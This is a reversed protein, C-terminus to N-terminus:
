KEYRPEHKKRLSGVVIGITVFIAIFELRGLWMQIIYTIKLGAPMAPSTIGTSLGVNATASVSEFLAPLFDYGYFCGILGGILFCTTFLFLGIFANKVKKDELVFNQFHHYKECYRAKFPLLWTKIEMAVAKFIMGLRLMKIGGTTSGMSGGFAMALALFMLSSQKWVNLENGSLNTFGCGTQASILQYFGKRFLGTATSPMLTLYLALLMLFFLGAFTRMEINKFLENRRKTWLFYHLNFSIAGLMMCLATISEVRMDHYFNISQEHPTFGGTDFAAMFLMTGELFARAVPMGKHMLVIGLVGTGLLLYTISVTWIFRTTSVVNPLIKEQRGEGIYMGLAGQPARALVAMVILVIGQGGIFMTFHRWFNHAFSMHELDTMMVLGTTAFGSMSEFCADLFSQAHGSFWLPLAGFFMALLWCCSVIAFSHMWGLECRQPCVTVLVAGAIFCIFISMLFDYFPQIEHVGLAVLLPGVMALGIGLVMKGLFHGITLFDDKDLFLIM